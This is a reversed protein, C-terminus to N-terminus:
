ALSSAYLIELVAKSAKELKHVSSRRTDAGLLDDHAMMEM